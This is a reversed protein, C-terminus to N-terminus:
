NPTPGVLKPVDCSIDLRKTDSHETIKFHTYAWWLRKTAGGGGYVWTLRRGNNLSRALVALGLLPQLLCIPAESPTLLKLLSWFMGHLNGLSDSQKTTHTPTTKASRCTSCSARQIADNMGLWAFDRKM